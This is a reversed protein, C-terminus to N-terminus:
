LWGEERLHREIRGVFRRADRLDDDAIQPDMLLSVEYDGTHRDEMTRGYISSYESEIIGPKVFHQRFAAIVGSHKSRALGLTALLANTAYFVAYYARNVATIYFGDELNRETARLAQHARAMYLTVEDRQSFGDGSEM